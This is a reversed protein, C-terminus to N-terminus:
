RVAHRRNQPDGTGRTLTSEVLLSARRSTPDRQGSRVGRCTLGGLSGRGHLVGVGSADNGLVGGDVYVSSIANAAIMFLWGLEEYFYFEFRETLIAVWVCVQCAVVQLVMLWAVANVWGANEVNLHRLV